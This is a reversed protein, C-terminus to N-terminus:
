TIRQILEDTQRLESDVEAANLGALSRHTWTHNGIEHKNMRRLADTQTLVHSGVINFTARVGLRDLM